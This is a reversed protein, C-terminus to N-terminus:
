NYCVLYYKEIANYTNKLMDKKLIYIKKGKQWQLYHGQLCNTKNTLRVAVLVYENNEEYEKIYEISNQNPNRAVYTPEKLIKYIDKGYREYDEFHQKKMHEINSDGIIIPMQNCDLGLIDIVKKSLEGVKKNM